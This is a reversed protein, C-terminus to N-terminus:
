RTVGSSNIRALQRVVLTIRIPCVRFTGLTGVLVAGTTDMVSVGVVPAEGIGVCVAVPVEDIIRVGLRGAGEGVLVIVWVGGAVSIGVVVIVGSGVSVSVGVKM